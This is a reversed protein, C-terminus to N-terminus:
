TIKPLYLSIINHVYKVEREIFKSQRRSSPNKKIIKIAVKEGTRLDTGVHVEGYSGRGIQKGISYWDEVTRSAGRLADLWGDFEEKSNAFFSVMRDECHIILECTRTGPQVRTKSVDVSWSPPSNEDRHHALVKGKLTIYRRHKLNLNRGRKTLYGKMEKMEGYRLNSSSGDQTANNKQEDVM